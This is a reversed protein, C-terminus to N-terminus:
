LDLSIQYSPNCLPPLHSKRCLYLRIHPTPPPPPIFSIQKKCDVKTNGSGKLFRLTIEDKDDVQRNYSSSVVGLFFDSMESVKNAFDEDDSCLRLLHSIAKM